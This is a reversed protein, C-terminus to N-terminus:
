AEEASRSYLTVRTRGYRRSKWVALSDPPAPLPVAASHELALVGGPALLKPAEEVIRAAADGDYPPDCLVLQWPGPAVAPAQLADAAVVRARGLIGLSELNRRLAALASRNREVFTVRVAGRSLAEIGLAGSGAFLDLASAGAPLPGLLDFLSERVRDSTPRTTLGPPADIRRGRLTGAIVRM